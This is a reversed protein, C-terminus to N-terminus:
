TKTDEVSLTVEEFSNDSGKVYMEFSRECALKPGVNVFFEDFCNAITKEDFINRNDHILHNALSHKVNKDKGIVEKM